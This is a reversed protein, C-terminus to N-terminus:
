GPDPVAPQYNSSWYYVKWTGKEGGVKKLRILFSAPKVKASEKPVLLVEIVVENEFAHDVKFSAFDLSTAPDPIVPINGTKWQTLTMGQLLEPHALKYSKALDKRSVATLIFQGAVRRAAPDVDAAKPQTFTQAPEDSFTEKADATNRAFAILAAAVAVALLIASGILILRQNRPSHYFPRKESNATSM